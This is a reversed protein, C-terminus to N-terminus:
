RPKIEGRAGLGDIPVLCHERRGCDGCRRGNWIADFQRSLADVTEGERTLIGWEFNRRRASKGGLGAGTLNASGLYATEDDVVIIKGHNRPCIRLDFLGHRFLHVHRELAEAFPGSPERAALLRIRVGRAVLDDFLELISVWRRGKPLHLNKLNATAIAIDNRVSHLLRRLGEFLEEDTLLQSLPGHGEWPSKM